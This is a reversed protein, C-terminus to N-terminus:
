YIVKYFCTAKLHHFSSAVTPVSVMRPGNNVIQSPSKANAMAVVPVQAEYASDHVGLATKDYPNLNNSCVSDWEVAKATISSNTQCLESLLYKYCLYHVQADVKLVYDMYRMRKIAIESAHSFHTLKRSLM